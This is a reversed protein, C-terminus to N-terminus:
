SLGRNLWAPLDIAGIQNWRAVMSGIAIPLAFPLRDRRALRAAVFASQTAAALGERLFPSVSARLGLWTVYGLACLGGAILSYAAAYLAGIPGMFIGVVAMLKVDGAGMARMAYFPVFCVLGLMGGLLGSWMGHAAGTALQLLLALILGTAILKNPIRHRRIDTYVATALIGPLLLLSASNSILTM